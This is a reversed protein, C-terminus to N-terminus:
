RLGDLRLRADLEGGGEESIGTSGTPTEIRVVLLALLLKRVMITAAEILLVMAAMRLLV